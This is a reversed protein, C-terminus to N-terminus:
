SREGRERAAGGGTGILDLASRVFGDVDGKDASRAAERSMNLWLEEDEALRRMFFALGQPNDSEIVFGDVGSRIQIDRAGSKDSLIVPLGLAQAEIVVIGYQEEISPLLLCLGGGLERAVEASSLNGRLVVLEELGLAGIKTRIEAELPGTGCLILRRPDTVTAVYQGYAEILMLHNKKPVLRAVCVFSRDRYPVGRPAPEMAADSRVREISTTYCNLRIKGANVGLFRLYDASRRSAVIAGQFPKYMLSKFVERWLFRPYDDFKSDQLVFVKRGSLRLASAALFIYPREYHSLFVVRARHARCARLIHFAGRFMGIRGREEGKFLNIHKFEKGSWSGFPYLESTSFLEVGVVDMKGALAVAVRDLQEVHMIRFNDLVFAVSVM